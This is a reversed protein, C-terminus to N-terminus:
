DRILKIQADSLYPGGQTARDGAIRQRRDKLFTLIRPIESVRMLSPMEVGSPRGDTRLRRRRTMATRGSALRDHCGTRRLDAFIETQV